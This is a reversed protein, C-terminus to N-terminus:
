NFKLHALKQWKRVEAAVTEAFAEPTSGVIENGMATLKDRVEPDALARLTEQNLREVIPRPTGAPAFLGIFVSADYGPVGSEALTPTSPLLPSRTSTGVALLKLRGAKIHPGSLGPTDFLVQAENAVTATVAPASGKYPIHVLDIGALMKFLEAALHSSSGTGFSAYNLRGPQAKALAILEQVSNAPVAPNVVLIFPTRVVLSIPAFDRVPDYSLKDRYVVSNAGHTSGTGQLLTYGDPAAKAVAETGITGGAGLRNEVVLPQGLAASMKEAVLRASVDVLGGASFPVIIRIPREPWSQAMSAAIHLFLLAALCHRLM